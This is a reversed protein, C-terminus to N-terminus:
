WNRRRQKGARTGHVALLDRLLMRRQPESVPAENLWRVKGCRGCEIRLFWSPFARFSENLAELPMPLPGDTYSRWHHRPPTM